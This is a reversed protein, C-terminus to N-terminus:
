NTGPELGPRPALNKPLGGHSPKKDIPQWTLSPDPRGTQNEALMTRIGNTVQESSIPMDCGVDRQLIMVNGLRQSGDPKWPSTDSSYGAPWPGWCFPNGTGFLAVTPVGHAAAIHSNVTDVGVYMSCSAILESTEAFRLKGSLNVTSAPMSRSVEGVYRIEEEGYGGTLYVKLGKNALFHAVDCWGGDTWRKGPLAADLQLVAYREDLSIDCFLPSRDDVGAAFRPPLVKYGSKYGLMNGLANNRLLTHTGSENQFSAHTIWHKWASSNPLTVSVRHKGFLWVYFHARDDAGNTIAIDYQRWCKRALSWLMRISPRVDITLVTNIDPSGEVIGEQGSSLLVDITADPQQERISHILPTALLIDGLSPRAIVLIKPNQQQM